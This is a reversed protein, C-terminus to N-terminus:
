RVQADISAASAVVIPDADVRNKLVVLTVAAACLLVQTYLLASLVTSATKSSNGNM